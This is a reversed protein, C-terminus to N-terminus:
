SVITYPSSSEGTGLLKIYSKLYLAPTAARNTRYAPSFGMFGDYDNNALIAFVSVSNGSYPSITWLYGGSPVINYIWNTTSCTTYNTNNISLNGCQGINTNAKLYDSVSMLAINGTWLRNNESTIQAALDTNDYTVAGVAWTHSQILNKAEATLTNYYNSNLYTNIEADKLVTGSLSGNVFNDNIAWANCGTSATACYTGGAGNSTSDRYGEKDFAITGINENKMIKLTGDTEVSIIRWVENNYTIYNSPNAGKYVYRGSEYIDAYLGDGSTVAKSKLEEITIPKQKITGKATISLNTQFAAYGATMVFLLCLTSIIIAKKRKSRKERRTLRRRRM